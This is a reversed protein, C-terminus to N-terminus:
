TLRDSLLAFLWCHCNDEESLLAIVLYPSYGATATTKKVLYPSRDGVATTKKVLYPSHGAVATTASDPHPSFTSLQASLSIVLVVTVHGAKDKHGIDVATCRESVWTWAM